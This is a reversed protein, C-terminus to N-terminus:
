RAPQVTSPRPAPCECTWLGTRPHTEECGCAPCAGKDTRYWEPTSGTVSERGPLPNASCWDDRGSSLCRWWGGRGGCVYCAVNGEPNACCCTDEGCDHGDMGNEDCSTCAVHEISSGCRACQVDWEGQRAASAPLAGIFTTDSVDERGWRWRGGRM